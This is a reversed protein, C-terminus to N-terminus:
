SFIVKYSRNIAQLIEDSIDQAEKLNEIIRTQSPDVTSHLYVNRKNSYLRNLIILEEKVARPINTDKEIESESGNDKYFMSFSNGKNIYYNYKKSLIKKLYGELAKFIGTLCGTYDESKGKQNLLSFSGSISKLLAEDLYSYADGLKLKMKSRILSSSTNGGVIANGINVIQEFSFESQESLFTVVIAFTQYPKGQIMAKKTTPYYTLTLVDGNYGTFRIIDRDESCNIIYSCEDKVYAVLSEITERKCPFVFQRVEIDKLFGKTGIYDILLNSEDLNKNGIPMIRVCNKKIYFIIRCEKGKIFCTCEKKTDGDIFSRLAFTHDLNKYSEVISKIDDKNILLETM